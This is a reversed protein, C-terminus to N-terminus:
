GPCARVVGNYHHPIPYVTLQRSIVRVTAVLSVTDVVPARFVSKTDRQM